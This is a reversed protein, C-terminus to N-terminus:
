WKWLNSGYIYGAGVAVMLVLDNEKIKRKEIAESLVIALSASGTNGIKEVNTFTKNLDKKMKKMIYHILNLNAQHFLILDIETFNIKSKECIKQISYPINTIAQKWTALGNM